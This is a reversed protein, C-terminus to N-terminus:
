VDFPTANGDGTITVDNISQVNSDVQGAVTFTLSDTKAKIADAVTDLTDILAKLAGLGDTGNSLDTQIGDVVTDVTALNAIITAIETDIYGAITSLTAPISTGTDVLITDVVTDVTALNTTITDLKTENTDGQTTLEAIVADTVIDATIGTKDIRADETLSNMGATNDVKTCNGRITVAANVNCGSEFVIQGDAEVSATHSASLSNFGIGGSYHRFVVTGAAGTANCVPYGNGAVGSSCFDFINDNSTDLTFDDVLTCFRAHAHLKTIEAAPADDIMCDILKIRDSLDHAGYVHLNIAKFNTLVSPSAATGLNLINSDKQGIGCIEYDTLTQGTLALTSAGTVYIIKSGLSGALTNAAAFTSVPNDYTGDTGLTTNTNAAADDFYVGHGCYGGYKIHNASTLIANIDAGNDNATQTAGSVQVNDVQLYDTTAAAFLSDFVNANVVMYDHRVPLCLSDDNILVTLMGETDLQGATLTLNYYGDASTIAAFTNGSIDTVASADHKLIEAEDATSLSLTTVPTFGDGVAVAPGIVVKVSTDAKLYQM